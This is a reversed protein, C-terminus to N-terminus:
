RCASWKKVRLMALEYFQRGVDVDVDTFVYQKSRKRWFNKATNPVQPANKRNMVRLTEIALM